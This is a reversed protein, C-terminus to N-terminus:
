EVLHELQEELIKWGPIELIEIEEGVEPPDDLCVAPVWFKKGNSPEILVARGSDHICHGDIRCLYSQQEDILIPETMPQPEETSDCIPCPLRQTEDQPCISDISKRLQDWFAETYDARWDPFKGSETACEDLFTEALQDALTRAAARALIRGDPNTTTDSLM